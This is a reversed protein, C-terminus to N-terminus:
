KLMMMKGSAIQGGANLTYIYVGSALNSGDFAAEHTGAERMGDVLMGVLRGSTDFVKLSVHSNASLQYRIATTPNFPNPFAEAVAFSAPTEEAVEGPFLEGSCTAEWVIPGSGAVVTKTFSFSDADMVPYTFTPNAYIIEYYQGPAWSAPVNQTRARTVTVGLPTNITVPGVTPATYSGDPNKVRCWVVYPTIPGIRVVSLDFPVSGGNAPVVTSGTPTITVTYFVWTEGGGNDIRWLVGLSSYAGCHWLNNGNYAIGEAVDPTSAPSAVSAAVTVTVGVSLRKLTNGVNDVIYYNAGSPANSCVEGDMYWGVASGSSIPSGVMVGAPTYKVLETVNSSQNCGVLLNTGDWGISRASYPAVSPTFQSIIAGTLDVKYIVNVPSWQVVWIGSGDYQAGIVYGAWPFTYTNVVAGNAPNIQILQSSVPSAINKTQYIYGNAYAMGCWANSPGPNASPITGLIDGFNNATAYTTHGSTAAPDLVEFALCQSTIILLVLAYFSFFRCM